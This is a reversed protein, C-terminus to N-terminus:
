YIASLEPQNLSFRANGQLLCSEQTAGSPDEFTRPCNLYRDSNDRITEFQRSNDRLANAHNHTYM